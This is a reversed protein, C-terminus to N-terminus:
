KFFIMKLIKKKLKNLPGNDLNDFYNMTLRDGEFYFLSLLILNQLGITQAVKKCVYNLLIKILYDIINM